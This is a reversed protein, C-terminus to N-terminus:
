KAPPLPVFVSTAKQYARYADGYKSVMHAELPPVGSVYRLLWFMCLPGLLAAFGWAYDGTLDIAFLAISLWLLTEFFYNPHRSWSWLGINCVKGSSNARSKFASLQRDSIFSGSIAIGFTALAVFDMTTFLPQPNWAALIISLLMPVSLLAQAQLLGFMKVRAKDGWDKQMKAYRPDDLIHQTRFAIHGALRFAWILVIAAIMLQRNTVDSTFAAMAGILGSTGLALTWVVDIWGSNGTRQQIGWAGAMFVAMVLWCGLLASILALSTM